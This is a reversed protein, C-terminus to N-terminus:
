TGGQKGAGRVDGVVRAPVGAVVAYDPVDRTVVAGAGILCCQGITVGPLITVNAGIWTDDGVTIPAYKVYRDAFGELEPLRSYCPGSSAVFTVGPALAVREGLTAAREGWNRIVVSVHWNFYTGEGAVFAGSRLWARRRVEEIHHERGIRALHDPSHFRLTQIRIWILVRRVIKRLIGV